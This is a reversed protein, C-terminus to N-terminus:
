FLLFVHSPSYILRQLQDPKQISGVNARNGDPFAFFRDYSGKSPAFIREGANGDRNPFDVSKGHFVAFLSRSETQLAAVHLDHARRQSQVFFSKRKM